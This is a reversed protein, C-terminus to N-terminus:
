KMNPFHANLVLYGAKYPYNRRFDTYDSSQYDDNRQIIDNWGPTKTQSSYQSDVYGYVRVGNGEKYWIYLITSETESYWAIVDTYYTWGNIENDNEMNPLFANFVYNGATYQYDRKFSKYSKSHYLKNTEVIDNWGPTANKSNYQSNVYGYIRVGHGEKYWIYLVTSETKSYWAKVSTYYKWGDNDNQENSIQKDATFGSLAFYTAFLGLVFLIKKM